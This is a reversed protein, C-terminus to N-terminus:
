WRSVEGEFFQGNEVILLLARSTVQVVQTRRPLPSTLSRLWDSESFSPFDSSHAVTM